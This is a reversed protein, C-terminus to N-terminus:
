ALDERVVAPFDLVFDGGYVRAATQFGIELDDALVRELVGVGTVGTFTYAEPTRLRARVRRGAADEAEAVIGMSRHGASGDRPTPDEPLADALAGLWAQWPATRYLWGFSRCMSLLARILPTGDVYTEINPIGTTYYATAVDGLSVNVSGQPGEGYDFTREVSGLPIRVLRGDRRVVGYDVAEILAKASGRTIFSLGTVGIALRRATPLRRAVHAALCDTAVVDFGVAPMIMIGRRRAAADRAALREIVPVEAAIDLYHARARLCADVIPEATESFPGAANLVTHSGGFAADLAKQDTVTAVRWELGLADALQALKAPNRGSLTPRLGQECARRALIRGSYGTAGYIVLPNAM